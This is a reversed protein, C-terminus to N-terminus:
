KKTPQVTYGAHGASYRLTTEKTALGFPTEKVVM